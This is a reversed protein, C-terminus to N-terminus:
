KAEVTIKLDGLAGRRSWPSKVLITYKDETTLTKLDNDSFLLLPCDFTVSGMEVNREKDWLKFGGATGVL